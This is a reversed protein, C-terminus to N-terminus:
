RLRIEIARAGNPKRPGIHDLLPDLALGISADAGAEGTFDLRSPMTTTGAGSIRLPGNLTAVDIRGTTGDAHWEARYTGVPRVPTL